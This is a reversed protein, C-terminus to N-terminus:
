SYTVNSLNAKESTDSLPLIRAVLEHIHIQGLVWLAIVGALLQWPQAGAKRWVFDRQNGKTSTRDNCLLTQLQLSQRHVGQGESPLCLFVQGAQSAVGHSCCHHTRYDQACPQCQHLSPISSCRSTSRPQGLILCHLSCISSGNFSSKSTLCCRWGLSDRHRSAAQTTADCPEALSSRLRGDKAGRLHTILDFAANCGAHHATMGRM